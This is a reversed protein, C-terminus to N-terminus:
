KYYPPQKQKTNAKQTTTKPIKNNNKKLSIWEFEKSIRRQPMIAALNLLHQVTTM